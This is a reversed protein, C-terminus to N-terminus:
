KRNEAIRIVTAAHVDTFTGPLTNFSCGVFHHGHLCVVDEAAEVSTVRMLDGAGTFVDDGPKVEGIMIRRYSM